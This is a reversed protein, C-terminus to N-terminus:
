YQRVWVAYLTADSQITFGTAHMIHVGGMSIEWCHFTYGDRTLNRTNDKVVVYSGPCYLTSDTPVAWGTIETETIPLATHQCRM